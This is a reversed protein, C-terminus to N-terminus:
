LSVVIISILDKKAEMVFFLLSEIFKWPGCPFFSQLYVCFPPSKRLRTGLTERSQRGQRQPSLPPRSSRGQSRAQSKKATQWFCLSYIGWLAMYERLRAEAHSNRCWDRVNFCWFCVVINRWGCTVLCNTQEEWCVNVVKLFGGCFHSARVSEPLMQNKTHRNRADYYKQQLPCASPFSPWLFPPRLLVVVVRKSLTVKFHLSNLQTSQSPFSHM